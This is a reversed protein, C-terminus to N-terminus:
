FALGGNASFPNSAFAIYIYDAGSQNMASHGSRYKFGNSLFDLYHTDVEAQTNEALLYPGQPNDGQRTADWILWSDTGSTEKIM